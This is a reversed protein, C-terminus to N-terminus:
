LMVRIFFLTLWWHRSVNNEWSGPVYHQSVFDKFWLLM